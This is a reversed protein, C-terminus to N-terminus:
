EGVKKVTSLSYEESNIQVPVAIDYKSTIIYANVPCVKVCRYCFVCKLYDILPYIRKPNKAPIEYGQPIPVMKIADAPCELACLTCGTCKTLDAYQVGRSDEEIPTKERPYQITAPKRLLNRLVLEVLKPRRM